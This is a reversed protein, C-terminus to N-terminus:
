SLSKGIGCIIVLKYCVFLRPYSLSLTYKHTYWAVLFHLMVTESILGYDYGTIEYYRYIWIVGLITCYSTIYDFWHLICFLVLLTWCSLVIYFLTILHLILWVFPHVAIPHHRSLSLKLWWIAEYVCKSSFSRPYARYLPAMWIGCVGESRFSGLYSVM